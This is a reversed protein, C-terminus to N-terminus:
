RRAFLVWRLGEYISAWDLRERKRKRRRRVEQRVERRTVKSLEVDLTFAPAFGSPVDLTGTLM